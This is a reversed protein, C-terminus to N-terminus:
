DDFLGRDRGYPVSLFDLLKGYGMQNIAFDWLKPKDLKMRQFRNPESELHIGFACIECGTRNAKTTQLQGNVAIIEGYAKSIQINNELTYRLVDQRTWFGLPTSYGSKTFSNCGGRKLYSKERRDSDSALLGVYAHLGTEHQFRHLPEEKLYYCCKDSIRFESKALKTWKNPLQWMKSYTGKKDVGYKYLMRSVSNKPTPNQLTRIKKAVAKSIVPYGFQTIVEKQNMRPKIKILNEINALIKRNESCEVEVISACPVNPCVSAVLHRMVQSDLGGSVGKYVQGEHYDYFERIVKQSKIVKAELPLSQMQRLQWLEM